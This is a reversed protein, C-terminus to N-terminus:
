QEAALAEQGAVCARLAAATDAFAVFFADGETKVECGGFTGWVERLLENHRELLGVYADGFRRFLRSSGEIDTFM